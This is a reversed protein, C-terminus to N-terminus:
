LAFSETLNCDTYAGLLEFSNFAVTYYSCVDSPIEHGQIQKVVKDDKKLIEGLGFDKPDFKKDKCLDFLITNAREMDNMPHKFTALVKEELAKGHLHAM